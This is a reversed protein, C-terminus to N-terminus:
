KTHYLLITRMHIYPTHIYTHPIQSDCCFELLVLSDNLSLSVDSMFICIPKVYEYKNQESRNGVSAQEYFMGSRMIVDDVNSQRM